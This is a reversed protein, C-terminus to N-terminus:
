LLLLLLLSIVCAILNKLGCILDLGKSPCHADM